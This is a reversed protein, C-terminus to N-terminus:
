PQREAFWWDLFATVILGGVVMAGVLVVVGVAVCVLFAAGESM